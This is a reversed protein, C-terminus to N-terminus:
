KVVTKSRLINMFGKPQRRPELSALTARMPVHGDAPEILGLARAEAESYRRIPTIQTSPPASCSSRAAPACWTCRATPASRCRPSRRSARAPPPPTRPPRSRRSCGTSATSSASSSPSASSRASSAAAAAASHAAKAPEDASGLNLKTDEGSGAAFAVPATLLCGFVAAPLIAHLTRMKVSSPLHARILSLARIPLHTASSSRRSEPTQSLVEPGIGIARRVQHAARSPEVVRERGGDGDSRGARARSAPIPAPAAPPSTAARPAPLDVTGGARACGSLACSTSVAGALVILALVYFWVLAILVFVASTGIRLTSINSLYLPFTADVIGM